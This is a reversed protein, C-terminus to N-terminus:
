IPSALAAAIAEDIARILAQADASDLRHSREIAEVQKEVAKLQNVGAITNSSKLSVLANNLLKVIPPDGKGSDLIGAAVLANVQNVILGIQQQASLVVLTGTASAPKFNADGGYSYTITYSGALLTSTPVSASFTGDAHIAASVKVAGVTIAVSGTPVLAGLSIQGGFNSSATGAVITAPTLASFTPTAKAFVDYAVSAIDNAPNPDEQDAVAYYTDSYAGATGATETVLFFAQEGNKLTGPAFIPKKAGNTAVFVLVVNTAAQPGRNTVTITYSFDQGELVPNPAVPSITVQLDAQSAIVQYKAIVINDTLNPDLQDARAFITDDYMGAAGATKKVVFNVFEGSKLDGLASIPNKKVDEIIVKTATQPGTNTVTIIYSFEQGELVPNPTVPSVTVQLDAQHANVEYAGMDTKAGFTRVFPVGRQDTTLKDPNAGQDITPSGALLAMTQTPGGNDALPGLRPDVPATAAGIFNGNGDPAGVPAEVLDTGSNDGILSDTVTPTPLGSKQYLDPSLSNGSNGAVISSKVTLTATYSVFVGPFDIFGNYIGGGGTKAFNGSLTSNSLALTGYPNYIGGGYTASNGALTTNSVTLTGRDFNYIGGGYYTKASNRSLTSASVTVTGRYFNYIGGGADSSNDSLTSGSVTLKGDNYIGGGTKTSNGSLTSRNVTMTAVNHIAGGSSTASNRSLTSGSVTLTSENYIAGGFVASNDSLTSDSITLTDYRNYIAGGRQGHNRSFTTGTITMTAYNQIAGGDYASNDSLVSGILTLDGDNTIAGGGSSFGGASKNGSLTTGSITASGSNYIGGGIYTVFNGSVISDSLTLTGDNLIGGGYAAKGNEITLGSIGVTTGGAIDFVSSAQNGSVALNNAGLGVIDLDKNILLEGMDLKITSGSLSQDFTIQDGNGAASIAERLSLYGDPGAPDTATGGDFGDLATTVTLTSPTLRDELVELQPRYRAAPRRRLPKSRCPREARDSAIISRVNRLWSTSSM